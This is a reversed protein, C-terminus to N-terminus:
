KSGCPPRGSKRKVLTAVGSSSVSISRSPEFGVVPTTPKCRKAQRETLQRRGGGQGGGGSFGRAAGHFGGGTGGRYGGGPGGAYGRGGYAGNSYGRGYGPGGRGNYGLRYGGRGYYGRGWAGQGYYGGYWPGAGLFVGGVFWNPGYYGYPACAYPSYGYYGYACVPPGVYYGPGVGIAVSVQAQSYALPIMLVALLAVYRLCRM